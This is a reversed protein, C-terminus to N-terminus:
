SYSEEVPKSKEVPTLCYTCLGKTSNRFQKYFSFPNGLWIIKKHHGAEECDQKRQPIDKTMFDKFDILLDTISRGKLRKAMDKKLGANPYQSAYEM